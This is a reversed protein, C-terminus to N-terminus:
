TCCPQVFGPRCTAKVVLNQVTSALYPVHTVDHTMKRAGLIKIHSSSKRSIQIYQRVPYTFLFKQSQFGTVANGTTLIHPFYFLNVSIELNRRMQRYRWIESGRADTRQFLFQINVVSFTSCLARQFGGLLCETYSHRSTNTLFLQEQLMNTFLALGARNL